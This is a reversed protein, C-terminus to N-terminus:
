INIHINLNFGFYKRINIVTNDSFLLYQGKIGILTLTGQFENIKLLDISKIKGGPYTETHLIEQSIGITSFAFLDLLLNRKM